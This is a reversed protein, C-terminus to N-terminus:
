HDELKSPNQYKCNKLNVKEEIYKSIDSNNEFIIDIEYKNEYFNLVSERPSSTVM